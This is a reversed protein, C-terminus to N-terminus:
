NTIAISSRFKWVLSCQVNFNMTCLIFILISFNFFHLVRIFISYIYINYFCCYIYSFVYINYFFLIFYLSFIGLTNSFHKYLYCSTEVTLWWWTVIFLLFVFIHICFLFSILLCFVYLINYIILFLWLDISLTVYIISFM